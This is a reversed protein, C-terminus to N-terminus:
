LAVLRTTEAVVGIIDKRMAYVFWYKEGDPEEWKIGANAPVLVLDGPQCPMPHRSYLAVQGPQDSPVLLPHQLLEGPGVALVRAQVVLNKPGGNVLHLGSATRETDVAELRIYDDNLTIQM